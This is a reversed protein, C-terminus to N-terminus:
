RWTCRDDLKNSVQLIAGLVSCAAGSIPLRRGLSCYIIRWVRGGTTREAGVFAMVTRKVMDEAVVAPIFGSM